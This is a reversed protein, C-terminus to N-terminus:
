FMSIKKELHTPAQLNTALQTNIAVGAPPGSKCDDVGPAVWENAALVVNAVSLLFLAFRAM